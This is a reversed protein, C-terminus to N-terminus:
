TVVTIADGLGLQFVSEMLSAMLMVAIMCNHEDLHEDSVRHSIMHRAIGKPQPKGSKPHWEVYFSVFPARTAKEITEDSVSSGAFGHNKVLGQPNTPWDLNEVITHVIMVASVAAVRWHGSHCAEIVEEALPIQAAMFDNEFGLVLKTCDELVADRHEHLIVIREEASSATVLKLFIERRPVWALPLGEVNLAEEIAPLFEEFNEPWNAPILSRRRLSEWDIREFIRDLQDQAIWSLTPIMFRAVTPFSIKPVSTQIKAILPAIGTAFSQSVNVSEVFPSLDVVPNVSKMASILESFRATQMSQIANLTSPAILRSVDIQPANTVFAKAIRTRAVLDSGLSISPAVEVNEAKENGVLDPAANEELDPM